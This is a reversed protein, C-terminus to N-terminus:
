YTIKTFYDRETRKLIVKENFGNVRQLTLRSDKM